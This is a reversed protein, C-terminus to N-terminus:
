PLNKKLYELLEEQASELTKIPYESGYFVGIADYIASFPWMSSGSTKVLFLTTESENKIFYYKSGNSTSLKENFFKVSNDTKLPFTEFIPTRLEKAFGPKKYSIDIGLLSFYQNPNMIRASLDTPIEEVKQGLIDTRFRFIGEQELIKELIKSKQKEIDKLTRYTM